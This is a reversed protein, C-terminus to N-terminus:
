LDLWEEVYGKRAWCPARWSKIRPNDRYLSEVTFANYEHNVSFFQRALRPAGEIYDRATDESMETLSDINLVLDYRECLERYAVPPLIRVPAGSGEGWLGVMGEGLVRGLYYGQAVGTLPIDIITYREVGMKMAYYATRGLGAGVELVRAGSAGGVLSKIRWVHYLAQVARYSVVGRSTMFGTEGPFINPFDVRFGMKADLQELLEEVGPTDTYDVTAEPNEVRRAGMARTIQLLNDYAFHHLWKVWGTSKNHAVVQQQILDFGYFLMTSAPDRLMAAIAELDTGQLIQHDKSKANSLDGLWMNNTSGLPTLLAKRYAEAVRAVLAMDQAVPVDQVIASEGALRYPHHHIIRDKFRHKWAGNKFRAMDDEFFDGTELIRAIVAQKEEETRASVAQLLAEMPMPEM